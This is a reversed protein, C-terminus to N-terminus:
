KIAFKLMDPIKTVGNDNFKDVITQNKAYGTTAKAEMFMSDLKVDTSLTFSSLDLSTMLTNKFMYSMDTVKSTDFNNLGKIESIESNAFMGSMNTVKSTNFTSLDLSSVKTGNFM